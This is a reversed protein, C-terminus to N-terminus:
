QFAISLKMEIRLMENLKKMLGAAFQPGRDSIMSELLKHLKWVNNRFLKVLDEAMIKETMVIFHSMKLFRDYVVLISNYGKSVPLKTILDVLIHQQLREPVINLRLKRAPM